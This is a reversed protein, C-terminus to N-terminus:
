MQAAQDFADGTGRQLIKEIEEKFEYDIEGKGHASELTKTLLAKWTPLKAPASFGAGVFAICKGENIQDLLHDFLEKTCGMNELRWDEQAHQSPSDFSERGSM